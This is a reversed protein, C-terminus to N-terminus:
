FEIPKELIVVEATHSRDTGQKAWGIESFGLGAFFRLSAEDQKELEIRIRKADPFCTELEAFLDRGIGQGELDADVLLRHLIVLNSEDTSMAAYGMGGIQRGDDAVVFESDPRVLDAKLNQISRMAGPERAEILKSVAALDAEQASRIFFM